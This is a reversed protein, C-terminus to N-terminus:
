GCGDYQAAQVQSDSKVRQIRKYDNLARMLRWREVAVAGEKIIRAVEASPAGKAAANGVAELFDAESM